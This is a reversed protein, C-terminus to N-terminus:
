TNLYENTEYRIMDKKYINLYTVFHDISKRNENLIKLLFPNSNSRPMWCHYRNILLRNNQLSSDKYHNLFLISQTTTTHLTSSHFVSWLHKKNTHQWRDGDRNLNQQKCTYTQRVLSEISFALLFVSYCWRRTSLSVAPKIVYGYTPVHLGHITHHLPSIFAHIFADGKKRNLM